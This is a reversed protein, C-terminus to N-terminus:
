VEAVTATAMATPRLDKAIATSSRGETWCQNQCIQTSQGISNHPIKTVNESCM